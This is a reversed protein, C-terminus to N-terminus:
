FDAEGAVAAIAPVLFVGGFGFGGGGCMPRRGRRPYPSSIDDLAETVGGLVARQLLVSIIPIEVEVQRQGMISM